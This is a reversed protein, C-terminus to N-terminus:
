SSMKSDSLIKDFLNYSIVSLLLEIVSFNLHCIKWPSPVARVHVMVKYKKIVHFAHQPATTRPHCYSSDLSDSHSQPSGIRPIKAEALPLEQLLCLIIMIYRATGTELSQLFQWENRFKKIPHRSNWNILFWFKMSGAVVSM